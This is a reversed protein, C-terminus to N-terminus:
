RALNMELKAISFDRRSKRTQALRCRLAQATDDAARFRPYEAAESGRFPPLVVQLPRHDGATTEM